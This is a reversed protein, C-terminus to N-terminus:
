RRQPCPTGAEVWKRTAAVFQEHTLPPLTRATGDIQRGPQFAWRVLPEEEHHRVLGPGDLGHNKSRDTVARCVEASSLIKESPDQWRMSLPALHWGHGGPVRTSDANSDQHCTVCQLAPVGKGEAGRVVNAFHRHRDDGQQPHNTATHCNICRPSTLVSYVQQWAALGEASKPVASERAVADGASSLSTSAAWAGCTVLALSTAQLARHPGM